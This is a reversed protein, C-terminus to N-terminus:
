NLHRTVKECNVLFWVFFMGFDIIVYYLDQRLIWAFTAPTIDKNPDFYTKLFSM